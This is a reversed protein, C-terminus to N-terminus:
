ATQSKLYLFWGLFVEDYTHHFKRHPNLHLFQCRHCQYFALGSIQDNLNMEPIHAKQWEHCRVIGNTRFMHARQWGHCRVIGNMRFMHARQWGHCRVTGNMRFM